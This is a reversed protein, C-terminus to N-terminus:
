SSVVTPSCQQIVPRDPQIPNRDRDASKELAVLFPPRVHSEPRHAAWATPRRRAARRTESEEPPTGSPWPPAFLLPPHSDERVVLAVALLRGGVHGVEDAPEAVVEAM